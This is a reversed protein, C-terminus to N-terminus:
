TALPTPHGYIEMFRKQGFGSTAMVSTLFDANKVDEKFITQETELLKFCHNLIIPGYKASNGREYIALYVINGSNTPICTVTLTLVHLALARVTGEM